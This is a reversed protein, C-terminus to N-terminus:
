GSRGDVNFEDSFVLQYMENPNHFSPIQRAELPTDDDILGFRGLLKPMQGSANM